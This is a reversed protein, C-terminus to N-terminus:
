ERKDVSFIGPPLALCKARSAFHLDRVGLLWRGEPMLHAPIMEEDVGVIM